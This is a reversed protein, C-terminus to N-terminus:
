SLRGSRRVRLAYTQPEIGWPPEMLSWPTERGPSARHDNRTATRSEGKGWLARGMQRAADKAMPTAVHTYRQTVRIDSHGLVEMVTRVHVGMDIVLTGATHRGDHVRADRVGAEKLIAKWEEWDHRPDIPRGDSRSFVLDHDEWCEGAAEEEADQAERQAKLLPVLDTACSERHQHKACDKPRPARHKDQTCVQPDGCGHHWMTRQIQWWIKVKHADLDMYKWRLGLAEDQRLGLALGVIWRTGNRRDIVADPIKRM